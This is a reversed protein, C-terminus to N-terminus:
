RLRLAVLDILHAELSAGCWSISSARSGFSLAHLSHGGESINKLYFVNDPPDFSPDFMM